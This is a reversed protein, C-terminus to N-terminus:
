EFATLIEEASLGEAEMREKLRQRADHMVKYLANRNTNMRRAVEQLPMGHIQVAVLVERQKETLEETIIRRLKRLLDNQVAQKEPSDKPDALSQPIFESDEVGQTIVEWSVDKWRQRRLETFSVNIAIKQAWTTFQSEGRFTDLADLIKLLADQAFDQIDAEKVNTRGALAYHLGRTLITRLTDLAQEQDPGRLADLWEENTREDAPPM